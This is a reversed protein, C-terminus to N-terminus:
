YNKYLTSHVELPAGRRATFEDIRKGDPSMTTVRIGDGAVNVRMVTQKANGANPGDNVVVPFRVNEIDAKTMPKAGVPRPRGARIKSVPDWRYVQHVDGCIWLDLKCPANEGYFAEAAIRAVNRANARSEFEFPTAHALMIRYKAKRCAESAMERKLWARQEDLYPDIDNLLAHHGPRGAADAPDGTDIVFFFADACTFSYYPRGFRKPFECSQAGHYEHNGRVLVLPMEGCLRRIEDTFTEHYSYAFDDFTNDVDGVSVLFRGKSIGCNSAAHRLLAIRREGDFQTDGVVHFAFDEPGSPHTRFSGSALTKEKATATDFHILDYGYGRDPKLGTIDFVHRTVAEKQGCCVAWKTNTAGESFYRVALPGPSTLEAGIRVSETGLATVWPGHRLEVQPPFMAALMKAREREGVDWPARDPFDRCLFTWGDCGPSVHFAIRNVGKRVKVTFVHDYASFPFGINGGPLSTAAKEGNIFATFFWDVAVGFTRTGDEAATFEREVVAKSSVTFDHKFRALDIREDADLAFRFARGPLKEGLSARRADDEGFNDGYVVSWVKQAPSAEKAWPCGGHDFAFRFSVEDGAAFDRRLEYWAGSKVTDVWFERMNAEANKWYPQRRVRIVLPSLRKCERIVFRARPSRPYDTEVDFVIRSGDAFSREVRGRRLEEVDACNVAYSLAAQLVVASALVFAKM